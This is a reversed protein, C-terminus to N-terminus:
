AAQRTVAIFGAPLGRPRLSMTPALYLASGLSNLRRPVEALGISIPKLGKWARPAGARIIDRKPNVYITISWFWRLDPLTQRDEYIRGM